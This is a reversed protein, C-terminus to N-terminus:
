GHSLEPEEQNCKDRRSTVHHPESTGYLAVRLLRDVPRDCALADAAVDQDRLELHILYRHGLDSLRVRRCAIATGVLGVVMLLLLGASEGRGMIAMTVLRYLGLVVLFASVTGKTLKCALQRRSTELYSRATLATQLVDCRNALMKSLGVNRHHVESLLRARACWDWATRQIASLANVDSMTANRRVMQPAGFLRFGKPSYRELYGLAILDFIVLQAVRRVGGKLFAIHYPDISEDDDPLDCDRTGDCLWIAVAGATLGVLGVGAYMLLFYPLELDTLFNHLMSNM